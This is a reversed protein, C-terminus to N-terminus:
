NMSFLLDSKGEASLKKSCIELARYIIRMDLFNIKTIFKKSVNKVKEFLNKYCKYVKESANTQQKLLIRVNKRGEGHSLFSKTKQFDPFFYLYPKSFM